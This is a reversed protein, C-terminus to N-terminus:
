QPTQSKSVRGLKPYRAANIETKALSYSPTHRLQLRIWWGNLNEYSRYLWMLFFVITAIYVVITLVALGVQLLAILLIQPDTIEEETPVLHPFFLELLSFM